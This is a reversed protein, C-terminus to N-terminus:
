EFTDHGYRDVYGYKGYRKVVAFGESFDSAKDYIFPIVVNGEKDLVITYKFKDDIKGVKTKKGDATQVYVPGRLTEGEQVNHEGTTQEAENVNINVNASNDVNVTNIYNQTNPNFHVSM